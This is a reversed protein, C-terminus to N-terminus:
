GPQSTLGDITLWLASDLTALDGAAPTPLGNIPSTDLKFYWALFSNIGNHASSALLETIMAKLQIPDRWQEDSFRALWAATPPVQTIDWHIITAVEENTLVYKGSAAAQGLESRFLFDPDMLKTLCVGEIALDRSLTARLEGYLTELGTEIAAADKGSLLRLKAALHPGLCTSEAAATTNATLCSAGQVVQLRLATAVPELRELLREVSPIDMHLHGVEVRAKLTRSSFPNVLDDAERYGLTRIANRMQEFSLMKVVPKNQPYDFCKDSVKDSGSASITRQKRELKISGTCAVLSGIALTMGIFILNRKM